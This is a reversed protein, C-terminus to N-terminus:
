TKTFCNKINESLCLLIESGIKDSM